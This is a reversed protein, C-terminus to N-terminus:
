WKLTHNLPMFYIAKCGDSRGMELVNKMKGFQFEISM